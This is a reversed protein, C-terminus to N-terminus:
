MEIQEVLKINECEDVNDGRDNDVEENEVYNEDENVVYNRYV